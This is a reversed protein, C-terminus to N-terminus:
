AFRFSTQPVRLGPTSAAIMSLFRSQDIGSAAYLAIIDDRDQQSPLAYFDAAITVPNPLVPMTDIGLAYIPGEINPLPNLREGTQIAKLAPDNAILDRIQDMGTLVPAGAPTVATPPTVTPPAQLGGPRFEALNTPPTGFGGTPTVSPIPAPTPAPATPTPATPTPATPTPLRNQFDSTPTSVLAPRPPLVPTLGVSSRTTGGFGGTLTSRTGSTPQLTRSGLLGGTQFGRELPIVEVEGGPREVLVEPGKEGILHAVGAGPTGGAFGRVPPGGGLRNQFDAPIGFGGALSSRTVIGSPAQPAQTVSGGFGGALSSRTVIGSPAQPAQTVSGGFGGALSSGGSAGSILGLQSLFDNPAEIPGASPLAPVSPVTSPVPVTPATIDQLPSALSLASGFAPQPGFGGAFLRAQVADMLGTQSAMAALELRQANNAILAAQTLTAQLRQAAGQEGLLARQLDGQIQDRVAQLQGRAAILQADVTAQSRVIDGRLGQTAAFRTAGAGAAAASRTAGASIRAASLQADTQAKQFPSMPFTHQLFPLIADLVDIGVLGIGPIDVRGDNTFTVSGLGPIDISGGGPPDAQQVM